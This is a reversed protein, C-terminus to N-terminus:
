AILDAFRDGIQGLKGVADVCCLLRLRELGCLAEPLGAWLGCFGPARPGCCSSAVSRAVSCKALWLEVFSQEM